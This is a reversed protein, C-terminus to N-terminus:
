CSGRSRRSSRRHVPLRAADARAAEDRQLARRTRRPRLACRLSSSRSRPSRCSSARSRSRCPSRAARPVHGARPRARRRAVDPWRGVNPLSAPAPTGPSSSPSARARAGRARRPSLVAPAAGVLAGAGQLRELVRDESGARRAVRRHRADRPGRDHTHVASSARSPTRSPDALPFALADLFAGGRDGDRRRAEAARHPARADAVAGGARRGRDRVQPLEDRLDRAPRRRPAAAVEAARQGRTRLVRRGRRDGRAEARAQAPLRGRAPPRLGPGPVHTEDALALLEAQLENIENIAKRLYREYIEDTPVSASM